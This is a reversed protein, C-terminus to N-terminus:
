SRLRNKAQLLFSLAVLPLIAISMVHFSALLGFMSILFGASLNSVGSAIDFSAGIAANMETQEVVEYHEGILVFSAIFMITMASGLIVAGIVVFAIDFGLSIFLIGVGIALSAITYQTATSLSNIKFKGFLLGAFFGSFSIISLIIGSAYQEGISVESWRTLIISLAGMAAGLGLMPGLLGWTIRNFYISSSRTDTSNASARIYANDSSHILEYTPANKRGALIIISSTSIFGCLLGVPIVWFAGVTSWLFATILPTIAFVLEETISDLAHLARNYDQNNAIRTWLTRVLAPTPPAVLNGAFLFVIAIYFPKNSYSLFAGLAVFLCYIMSLPIVTKVPAFRMILKGKYPASLAGTAMLLSSAIGAYAYEHKSSYLAILGFPVLGAALRSFNIALLIPAADKNSLIDKYKMKKIMSGSASIDM